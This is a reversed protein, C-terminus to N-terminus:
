GDHESGRGCTRRNGDNSAHPVLQARALHCGAPQDRREPKEKLIVNRAIVEDQSYATLSYTGPLDVLYMKTGDPLRAEGETRDVSIGPYNGVRATSGTVANFLTSKGCNPQGAVAVYLGDKKKGSM